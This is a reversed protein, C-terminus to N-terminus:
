KKKMCIKFPLFAPVEKRYKIYNEGFKKLSTKEEYYMRVLQMPINVILAFIFAYYSNPILPLSALELIVGAYIPHRIYKYPGERILFMQAKEIKSPGVAHVAWQKGLTKIGWMRLLFALVFVSISLLTVIYNIKRNILYFELIIITSMLYYCIATALLTWDKEIEHRKREKTSYFTEWIREIMVIFVFVTFLYRGKVNPYSANLFIILAPISILTIAIFIRLINKKYNFEM